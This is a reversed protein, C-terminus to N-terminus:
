QLFLPWGPRPNNRPEQDSSRQTFFQEPVPSDRPLFTSLLAFITFLTRMGFDLLPPSPDHM